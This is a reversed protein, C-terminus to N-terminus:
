VFAISIAAMANHASPELDVLMFLFSRGLNLDRLPVMRVSMNEEIDDREAEHDVAPNTELVNSHM